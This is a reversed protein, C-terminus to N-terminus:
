LALGAQKLSLRALCDEQHRNNNNNLSVLDVVEEVSHISQNLNDLSDEEAWREKLRVLDPHVVSLRHLPHVSYDEQTKHRSNNNALAM